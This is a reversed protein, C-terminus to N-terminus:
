ILDVEEAWDEGPWSWDKTSKWKNDASSRKTRKDIMHISIFDVKWKKQWRQMFEGGFNWVELGCNIKDRLPHIGIKHWKILCHGLKEENTMRRLKRFDGVETKEHWRVGYNCWSAWYAIYTDDKFKSDGHGIVNGWYRFRTEKYGGFLSCEKSCWQACYRWAEWVSLVRNSCWSAKGSDKGTEVLGDEAWEWTRLEEARATELDLLNQCMVGIRFYRWQSLIWCLISYLTRDGITRDGHPATTYHTAWESESGYSM